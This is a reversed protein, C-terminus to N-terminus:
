GHGGMIRPATGGRARYIAFQLDSVVKHGKCEPCQRIEHRPQEEWYESTKWKFFGRGECEPCTKM